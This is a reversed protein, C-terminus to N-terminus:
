RLQVLNSEFATSINAFLIAGLLYFPARWDRVLTLDANPFGPAPTPFGLRVAQVSRIPVPASFRLIYSERRLNHWGDMTM